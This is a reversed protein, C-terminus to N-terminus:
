SYPLYQKYEIKVGLNMLLPIFDEELEREDLFYYYLDISEDALEIVYTGEDIIEGFGNKQTEYYTICIIEDYDHFEGIIDFVGRKDVFGNPYFLIQVNSFFFISIMSLIIGAKLLKDMFINTKPSNMMYDKEKYKEYNDRYVFKYIKFRLLYSCAIATIYSPLFIFFPDDKFVYLADKCLIINFLYYLIGYFLGWPITLILWSIFFVILEKFDNKLVGSKYSSLHEIIQNDLHHSYPIHSELMEVLMYEYTTLTKKKKYLKIAKERHGLLFEIYAQDVEQMTLIRLFLAYDDKDFEDLLLNLCVHKYYDRDISGDNRELLIELHHSINHTLLQMSSKLTNVNSICPIIFCDLTKIDYHTICTHFPIELDNFQIFVDLINNMQSFSSHITFRYILKYYSFRIIAYHYVMHELCEEGKYFSSFECSLGKLQSQVKISQEEFTKIMQSLLELQEM